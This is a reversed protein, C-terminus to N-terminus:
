RIVVAGAARFVLCGGFQEHPVLVGDVTVMHAGPALGCVVNIERM